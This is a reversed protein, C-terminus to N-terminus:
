KIIMFKSHYQKNNSKDRVVLIYNGNDFGEPISVTNQSSHQTWVIRGLFDIIRLEFDNATSNIKVNFNSVAPNPYINIFDNNFKISNFRTINDNLDVEDENPNTDDSTKLISIKCIKGVSTYGKQNFGTIKVWYSKGSLLGKVSTLKIKNLISTQTALLVKLDSDEYFDVVYGTVNSLKQFSITQMKQSSNQDLSLNSNECYFDDLSSVETSFNNYSNIKYYAEISKGKVDSITVKYINPTLKSLNQSISGFSWKIAYPKEGGNIILYISGFINNYSPQAISATVNLQDSQNISYSQVKKCGLSDILTMTYMGAKLNSIEPNTIGNDWIFSYPAIGGKPIIVIKGNQKGIPFEETIEALMNLAEPEFLDIEKKTICGSEDIVSINFHTNRLNSKFNQLTTDSNWVYKFPGNGTVILKVEGNDIGNCTPNKTIIQVEPANYYSFNTVNSTDVCANGFDVVVTYEGAIPNLIGISDSDTIPLGNFYWQYSFANANSLLIAKEGSCVKSGNVHNIIAKPRSIYLASSIGEGILAPNTSVVRIKFGKSGNLFNPVNFNISGSQISSVRGLVLPNAFDGLSDSIEAIFSNGVVFDGTTTYKISSLSGPCLTQSVMPSMVLSGVFGGSIALAFKQIGNTLTGKHKITITYYDAQPSSILVQEINDVLNDGKTANSYPYAPNLVYPFNILHDSNREVRIDLDNILNSLRGDNTKVFVNGPPDIWSLTAKLDESSNAFVTIRYENGPTLENEILHNKNTKNDVLAICGPINLLGWGFSYDPGPNGADLASHLAIGKLAAASLYKGKLRKHFEQVLALSGCVNPSSMSTGSATTYASDTNCSTSYINVGASVLDPKIRGDDTPGWSSFTSMQVSSSNIYGGPLTNVAGVVLPNKSVSAYSLCDYGLQGGDVNRPKNSVQWQYNIYAYHLSGIPPGENRDNGAARVILYNPANYAVNDWDKSIYNYYGFNADKYQSMLTDGFWYWGAANAPSSAATSYYKWGVVYGYSHNSLLMGNAAAAVMESIDLNWDYADLNGQFAMGKANIKIGNSIMSGAVHTSHWNIVTNLDKQVVRNSFEQHSSKVGGADWIGLKVGIGSLNKSLIENPWVLNTGTTKAADLNNNTTLYVPRGSEDLSHLETISNNAKDTFKSDLSDISYKLLAANKKSSYINKYENSLEILNQNGSYFNQGNGKLVLLIFMFFLALFQRM